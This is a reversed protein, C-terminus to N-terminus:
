TGRNLVMAIPGHAAESRGGAVQFIEVPVTSPGPSLEAAPYGAEVLDEDQAM